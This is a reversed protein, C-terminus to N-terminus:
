SLSLNRSRQPAKAVDIKEAFDPFTRKKRLKQGEKKTQKSKAGNSRETGKSRKGIQRNQTEDDINMKGRFGFITKLGILTPSARLPLHSNFHRIQRADRGRRRGRQHRGM